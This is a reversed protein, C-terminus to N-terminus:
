DASWSFDASEGIAELLVPKLTEIERELRALVEDAESLNELRGLTELRWAVDCAAEAQLSGLVGKLTHAAENVQACQQQTIGERIQSLHHPCTEFFVKILDRLFEINGAVCELLAASNLVALPTTTRQAKAAPVAVAQAAQGQSNALLTEITEFFEGFQIPKTLYADMGAAFCEERDGKMARATMAIIPTHKSTGAEKRRIISTAELGNMEPMQVDMLILDFAEQEYVTLAERGNGAVVLTHGRNELMKTALMQNIENDEALLIHLRRTSTAAFKSANAQAAKAEQASASLFASIAELLDSQSVPKTLYGAFGLQRCRAATDHRMASTLLIIPTDELTVDDRMFEAVTFGSMGPMLDDLLALRYPAGLKQAEVLARLAETGSAVTTPKMQWTNLTEELIRRNTANDDVVLVPLDRLELPDLAAAELAASLAFRATFHFTSGVGAESEVWITGSMMNVLQTSIALGLGTGGYKRTTSGDAQEFAEFISAQKDAPIGIGTDRVSFHLDVADDSQAEIAVSAIVEGVETFKIANGVLNIIIQRLRGADGHLADPIEAPIDCALELGKQHCRLALTKMVKNLNDRLSFDSNDLEMKGAEIKSFDLIDNILALLAEGSFRIAQAFEQQDDSLETGLLLGTMGIVGNMPTRIEHSMNALFESKARNATEAIEKAEVLERTREDVIQVLERERAKLRNIRLLYFGGTAIAAAMVCLGYFWITQYFHPRLYFSIAAGAENWVGDNNCAMVRFTYNGPPINTYYAARRAGADIWDKDFGELRYRFKVKQPDLFSLATYHFELEGKGPPVKAQQKFDLRVKDVLTQEILVPPPVTNIQLNNPAIVAVGKITPFWLKGDRARCGAPQSGGNCESSKMGDSVNLALCSLRSIEGRDLRELDRKNVAFIGKNCSIWLNGQDDELTQFGVDDFLGQSTTYTTINGDRVRVLGGGWTTLWVNGERDEYISELTDTPLGQQTGFNTFKGDKFYNLGGGDTGVWLGGNRSEVIALVRNNSLGDKTTYQTYKGDRWRVLGSSNTGIWLAGDRDEDLALIFDDPLGQKKTYSSFKGEKFHNIGGGYTGIWLSGDHSETLAWVVNSSLGQATTYTTFKGDRFRSLGGDDTGIWISGDSATFAVRAADSSLGEATTYPTVKGDRFRSLGGGDTGVWLNGERDEFVALVLDSALGEKTTFHTFKGDRLRNLGGGYSGIWLNGDRDPYICSTANDTLGERTTYTTFAGDKYRSVGGGYTSIWLNKANDLTLSRIVKDTLEAPMPLRIFREGKRVQLGGEDVGVLLDGHADLCLARVSNNSLGDATTYLTLNDDRLRNLGSKTGIWIDGQQDQYIARVKNGALGENVSYTTFVGDKMKVVGGGDTGIWLNADRDEYLALIHNAKFAATNRKDFVTFTVGDFRVLGEQTGFWIYGDLTQLITHVSNQPLGDELQWVQRAYQTIAKDANLARVGPTSLLAVGLSVVTIFLGAM